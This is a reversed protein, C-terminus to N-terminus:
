KTREGNIFVFCRVVLSGIGIELIDQFVQLMKSGNVSVIGIEYATILCTAEPIRQIM